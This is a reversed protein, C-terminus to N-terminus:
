SGTWITLPSEKTMQCIENGSHSYNEEGVQRSNSGFVVLGYSGLAGGTFWGKWPHHRIDRFFIARGMGGPWKDQPGHCRHIPLHIFLSFTILFMSKTCQQASLKIHCLLPSTGQFSYLASVLNAIATTICIAGLTIRIFPVIASSYCWSSAPGNNTTITFALILCFTPLPSPFFLAHRRRM